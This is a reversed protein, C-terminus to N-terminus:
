LVNGLRDPIESFDYMIAKGAICKEIIEEVITHQKPELLPIAIFSNDVNYINNITM